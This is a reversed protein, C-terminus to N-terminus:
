IHAKLIMWRGNTASSNIPLRNEAQSCEERSSIEKQRRVKNKPNHPNEQNTQRNTEGYYMRTHNHIKIQKNINPPKNSNPTLCGSHSKSNSPEHGEEIRFVGQDNDGPISGRGIDKIKEEQLVENQGKMRDEKYRLMMEYNKLVM